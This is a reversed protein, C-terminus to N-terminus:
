TSWVEALMSTAVADVQGYLEDLSGSNDLVWRALTRKQGPDVQAAIRSRAVAEDIGRHKQLRQVRIDEPCLVLVLWTLWPELRGSDGLLAADVICLAAGHEHHWACQSAIAKALLPKTIANLRDLEGPNAFVIKGLKARDIIGCTLAAPGFAEIVAAEAPGGPATLTHGIKDADVVPIGHHEFRRAAASKGSGMGGTLGAIVM